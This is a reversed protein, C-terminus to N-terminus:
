KADGAAYKPGVSRLASSSPSFGRSRRFRARRLAPALASARDASATASTAAAATRAEATRRAFCRASAPVSVAAEGGVTKSGGRRPLYDIAHKSGIGHFRYFLLSADPTLSTTPHTILAPTPTSKRQNPGQPFRTTMLNQSTM